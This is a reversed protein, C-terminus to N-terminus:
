PLADARIRPDGASAQPCSFSARSEDSCDSAPVVVGSWGQDVRAHVLLPAGVGGCGFCFADVAICTGTVKKYWPCPRPQAPPQAEKNGYADVGGRRQRKGAGGGGGTAQQPQFVAPRPGGGAGQGGGFFSRIDAAVLRKPVPAPQPVGGFWQRIDKQQLQAQPQGGRGGQWQGVAGAGGGNQERLHQGEGGGKPQEWFLGDGDDWAGEAGAGRDDCDGGGGDGEEDGWPPQDIDMAADTESLREGYDEGDDDDDRDGDGGCLGAGARPTGATEAADDCGARGGQEPM